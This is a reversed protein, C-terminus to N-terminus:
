LRLIAKYLSFPFNNQQHFRTSLLMLALMAFIAIKAQTKKRVNSLRNKALMELKERSARRKNSTGARLDSKKENSNQSDAKNKDRAIPKHRARGTFYM